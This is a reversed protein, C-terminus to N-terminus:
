WRCIQEGLEPFCRGIIDDCVARVTYPTDFREKLNLIQDLLNCEEALTVFLNGFNQANGFNQVNGINGIISSNSNGFNGSHSFNGHFTNAAINSSSNNFGTNSYSSSSGQSNSGAAMQDGLDFVERIGEVIFLILKDDWPSSYVNNSQNYVNNTQHANNGEFNGISSVNHSANSNQSMNSNQAAGGSIDNNNNEGSIDNQGTNNQSGSIPSGSLETVMSSNSLDHSNDTDEQFGGAAGGCAAEQSNLLPLFDCEIFMKCVDFFRKQRILLVILDLPSLPQKPNNQTLTQGIQRNWTDMQIGNGVPTMQGTDLTSSNGFSNTNTNANLATRTQIQSNGNGGGASVAVGMKHYKLATHLANAFAWVCEKRTTYTLDNSSLVQEGNYNGNELEALLVDFADIYVSKFAFPPPPSAPPVQLHNPSALTQNSPVAIQNPASGFRWGEPAVVQQPCCLQRMQDLTGAAINSVVWVAEKKLRGISGSGKGLTGLCSSSSSNMSGGCFTLPSSSRYPSPNLNPLPNFSSTCSISFEVSTNCGPGNGNSSNSASSSCSSNNSTSNMDGGIGSNCNSSMGTFSGLQAAPPPSPHAPPSATAPPSAAPPFSPPPSTVAPPSAGFLLVSSGLPPSTSPPFNQPFNGVFSSTNSNLNNFNNINNHNNINNNNSNNGSNSSVPPSSMPMVSSMTADHRELSTTGARSSCGFADSNTNGSNGCANQISRNVSDVGRVDDMLISDILGSILGSELCITTLSSDTAEVINGLARMAPHRAQAVCDWSQELHFKLDVSSNTDSASRNGNNQWLSSPQPSLNYSKEKRLPLV